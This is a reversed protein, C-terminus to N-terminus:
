RGLLEVNGGDEGNVMIYIARLNFGAEFQANVMSISKEFPKSMTLGVLKIEAIM